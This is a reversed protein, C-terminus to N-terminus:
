QEMGHIRGPPLAASAGWGITDSPLPITLASKPPWLRRNSDIGAGPIMTLISELCVLSRGEASFSFSQQAVLPLPVLSLLIGVLVRKM